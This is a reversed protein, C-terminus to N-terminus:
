SAEGNGATNGPWGCKNCLCLESTAMAPVPPLAWDGPDALTSGPSAAELAAFIAQRELLPMAHLKALWRRAKRKIRERERFNRGLYRYDHLRDPEPYNMWLHEVAQTRGRTSALFTVERWSKLMTTYLGHDYGSIAISCPLRLVLQLLRRHEEISSFDHKYIRRRSLRVDWLYPPDVYALEDGKWNYGDLFALGDGVHLEVGPGAGGFAAIAGPDADVGISRRAPRKLRLIAGGGLFPEIYTDHPPLQCIIAQYVGQGAKGGPYTAM